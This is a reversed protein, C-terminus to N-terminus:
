CRDILVSANAPTPCIDRRSEPQQCAPLAGGAVAACNGGVQLMAPILRQQRMAATWIVEPTNHDGSLAAAFVGPGYSELM